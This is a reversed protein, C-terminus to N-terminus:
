KQGTSDGTEARIQSGFRIEVNGGVNSVNPSWAGYSIQSTSSASTSAAASTNKRSGKPTGSAAATMPNSAATLARGGATASPAGNVSETSQRHHIIPLILTAITLVSVVCALVTALLGLARALPSDCVRKLVSKRNSNDMSKFCGSVNYRRQFTCSVADSPGSEAFEDRRRFYATTQRPASAYEIAACIDERELFPYDALVEELSAGNALLALIDTIRNRQGRICPRGGCKGEEITIRKLRDSSM